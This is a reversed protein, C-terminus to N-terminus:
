QMCSGSLEFLWAKKVQENFISAGIKKGQASRANAWWRYPVISTQKIPRM